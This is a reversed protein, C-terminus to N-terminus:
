NVTPGLKKKNEWNEKKLTPKMRFTYWAMMRLGPLKLIAKTMSQITDGEGLNM